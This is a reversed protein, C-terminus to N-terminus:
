AFNMLGGTDQPGEDGPPLRSEVYERLEIELDRVAIPGLDHGWEIWAMVKETVTRRVVERVDDGTLRHALARRALSALGSPDAARPGFARDLWEERPAGAAEALAPDLADPREAHEGAKALHILWIAAMDRAKAPPRVEVTYNFRGPRMFAPDINGLCNTAGIVVVPSGKHTTMGDMLALLTAVARNHCDDHGAARLDTRRSAIADFEDLFIISGGAHASAEEWLNRLNAETNGYYLNIFVTSPVCYFPVCVTGALARAMATKGCGPPGHLLVGRPPTRAVGWARTAAHGKLVATVVLLQRKARQNGGVDAFTSGPRELYRSFDRIQSDERRAGSSGSSLSSPPGADRKKQRAVDSQSRAKVYEPDIELAREYDRIAADYDGRYEEILGRTYAAEALNPNLEMVKTLDEYAATYRQLRTRALGRNFYTELLDPRLELAVNYCAIADDFRGIKYFDNALNHFEHEISLGPWDDDQPPPPPPQGAKAEMERRLRALLSELKELLGQAQGTRMHELRRNLRDLRRHLEAARAEPAPPGGAAGPPPAGAPPAAGDGPSAAPTAAAAAESEDDDDERPAPGLSDFTVRRSGPEDRAFRDLKRARHELRALDAADGPAPRADAPAAAVAALVERAQRSSPDLRLASAACGAAQPVAGRALFQRALVVYQEALSERIM